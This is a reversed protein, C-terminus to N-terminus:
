KKDLLQTGLKISGLFELQADGFTWKQPVKLKAVTKAKLCGKEAAYTITSKSPKPPRTTLM